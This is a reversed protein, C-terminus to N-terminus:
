EKARGMFDGTRTDVSILEGVDIHQPAKVELGTECIVKKTVGTATDGRISPEAEIVELTVSASLELDLLQVGIKGEGAQM